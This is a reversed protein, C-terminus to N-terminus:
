RHVLRKERRQFFRMLADLHGGATTVDLVDIRGARVAAQFADEREQRGQRFARQFQPDATDLLRTTGTEADQIRLLGVAPLDRERPDSVPVAVVDHRRGTQQFVKHYDDDLFDSFVFLLSRRRLVRNLFELGVRLRTGPRGPRAVFCDRILRLAHRVGKRPPIYKEVADTCFALGVKDNNAAACLALMAALEAVVAHKAQSATGFTM